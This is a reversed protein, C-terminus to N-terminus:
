KNTKNKLLLFHAWMLKSSPGGEEYMYEEDDFAIDDVRGTFM